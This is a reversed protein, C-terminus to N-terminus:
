KVTSVYLNGGDFMWEANYDCSHNFLSGLLCLCTGVHAKEKQGPTHESWRFSNILIRRTFVFALEILSLLQEREFIDALKGNALMVMAAIEIANTLHYSLYELGFDEAHSELSAFVKLEQLRLKEEGHDIASGKGRKQEEDGLYDDITYDKFTEEISDLQLMTDVGIRNFLRYVHYSSKSKDALWGALGCEFRHVLRWDKTQCEQSCYVLENCHDCPLCIFEAPKLCFSCKKKQSDEFIITSYSREKFILTGAPIAENAIFYRGLKDCKAIELRYDKNFKCYVEDDDEVDTSCAESEGDTESTNTNVKALAEQLEDAIKQHYAELKAGGLGDGNKSLNLAQQLCQASRNYQELKFLFKAEYLLHKAKPALQQAKRICWLATNNHGSKYLILARLHYIKALLEISSPPCDVLAKNIAEIAQSYEELSMRLKAEMYEAEALKENKGAAQKAQEINRKVSACMNGLCTVNSEIYEIMNRVNNVKFNEVKQANSVKTVIQAKLSSDM